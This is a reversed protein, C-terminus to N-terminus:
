KNKKDDTGVSNALKYKSKVKDILNELPDLSDSNAAAKKKM